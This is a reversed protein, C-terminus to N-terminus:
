TLSSYRGQTTLAEFDPAPEGLIPMSSGEVCM